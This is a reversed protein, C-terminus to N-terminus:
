FLGGIEKGARFRKRMADGIPDDTFSFAMFAISSRARRIADIIADTVNGRSRVADIEGHRHDHRDPRTHTHKAIGGRWFFFVCM